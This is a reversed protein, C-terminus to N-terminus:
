PFDWLLILIVLVSHEYLNLIKCDKLEILVEREDWIHVNHKMSRGQLKM